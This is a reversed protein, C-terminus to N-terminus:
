LIYKDIQKAVNVWTYSKAISINYNSIDQMLNTEKLLETICDIFHKKDNKTTIYNHSGLISEVGGAGSTVIPLGCAMAELMATPTGEKLSTLMFIDSEYYLLRLESSNKYGLIEVNTIDEYQVRNLLYEKEPGDGVLIFNLLKLDKAIDIVLDLNKKKVLNAVIIVQLSKKNFSRPQQEFFINRIGSPQVIVKKSTLKKLQSALGHGTAFIVDVKKLLVSLAKKPLFNESLEDHISMILKKSGVIKKIFKAFILSSWDGHIHVIDFKEQNAILRLLTLFHFSAIGLFQPKLKYLPFKTIQVDKSTVKTGKNFYITVDHGLKTQEKSLQAIHNEM